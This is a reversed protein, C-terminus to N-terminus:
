RHTPIRRRAAVRSAGRRISRSSTQRPSTPRARDRTEVAHGTPGEGESRIQECIGRVARRCPVGETRAQRVPALM